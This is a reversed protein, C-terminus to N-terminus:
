AMEERFRNLRYFIDKSEQGIKNKLALAEPSSHALDLFCRPFTMHLDYAEEGVMKLCQRYNMNKGATEPDRYTKWREMAGKNLRFLEAVKDHGSQLYLLERHSIQNLIGEEVEMDMPEQSIGDFAGAEKRGMRTLQKILLAVLEKDIRVFEHLEDIMIRCPNSSAFALQKFRLSIFVLLFKALEQDNMLPKFDVGVIGGSFDLSDAKAFRSGSTTSLFSHLNDVMAQCAEKQAGTFEGIMDNGLNHYAALTPGSDTHEGYCYLVQLLQEAVSKIHTRIKREKESCLLPMLAEITPAVVDADLPMEAEANALDWTPFPSIVTKNPDLHHYAGGFGEVVWKYSPGVEAIYFDVGLPYLELIQAVKAVGKGSGTKAGNISHNPADKPYGFAVLQCEDTLRLMQPDEQNGTKFSIVPAMNAVQWVHDSRMFASLYGQGPQSIRWYLMTINDDNDSIVAGSPHLMKKIIRYVSDLYDRDHHYFTLIYCNAFLRLKNNAVFARFDDHDQKKAQEAEGGITGASERARESQSASKRVEMGSDLPKLIQTAHIEVGYNRALEFFWNSGADPYDVLLAVKMYTDGLKLFGQDLTPKKVLRQNLKFRPNTAPISGEYARDRHYTEWILVEYEDQNLMMAGPLYTCLERGIHILEQAKKKRDKVVSKASLWSLLRNPKSLTIVTFVLNSMARKGLHEALEQRFYRSIDHARVTHQEGYELYKDVLSDDFQRLLHNEVHLTSDDPISNLSDYWSGYVSNIYEDPELETSYGEWLIALSLTGDTHDMVIASETDSHFIPGIWTYLDNYYKTM